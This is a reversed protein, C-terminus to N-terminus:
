FKNIKVDLDRFLTIRDINDYTLEKFKEFYNNEQEQVNTLADLFYYNSGYIDQHKVFAITKSDNQALFYTYQNDFQSFPYIYEDICKLNNEDKIDCISIPISLEEALLPNNLLGLNEYPHLSISFFMIKYTTIITHYVILLKLKKDYYFFQFLTINIFEM